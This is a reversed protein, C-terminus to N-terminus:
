PTRAEQHTMEHHLRDVARYLRSRFAAFSCGAVAAADALTLDEVYHLYLALRDHDPLRALAASLDLRAVMTDESMSMEHRLSALKLVSRWPRRLRSQCQRVVIAMFWARVATPDRLQAVKRWALFAADQVADQAEDRDRLLVVSLRYGAEMLTELNRDLVAAASLTAVNGVAQLAM